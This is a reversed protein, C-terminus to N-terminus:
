KVKRYSLEISLVLKPEKVIWCRRPSFGQVGQAVEHGLECSDYYPWSFHANVIRAVLEHECEMSLFETVQRTIGLVDVVEKLILADVPKHAESRSLLPLAIVM